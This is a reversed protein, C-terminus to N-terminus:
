CTTTNKIIRYQIYHTCHAHINQQAMLDVFLLVAMIMYYNSHVSTCTHKLFMNFSPITSQECVCFVCIKNVSYFIHMCKSASAHCKPNCVMFELGFAYILLNVNKEGSKNERSDCKTQM